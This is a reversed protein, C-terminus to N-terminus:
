PTRRRAYGIGALLLSMGLVVWDLSGGGSYGPKNEVKYAQDSKIREKFGDLEAQLRPIM